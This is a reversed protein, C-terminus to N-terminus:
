IKYGSCHYFNRLINKLYKPHFFDFGINLSQIKEIDISVPQGCNVLNYRLSLGTIDEIIKVIDVVPTNNPTAINTIENLYIKNEVLYSATMFVDDVSILNRTSYKYIDIKKNNLISTFLYNVLTQNRTPGVVQPLRFIYFQSCRNKILNEMKIKHMVYRTKNVSPDYISCTGFYILLKEQNKNIVDKLLLEERNFASENTEKSDSVGSAFVIIEDHREYYEFAKAMMGNGILM